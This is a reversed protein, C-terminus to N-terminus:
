SNSLDNENLKLIPVTDLNKDKMYTTISEYNRLKIHDGNKEAISKDRHCFVCLIQCKAMEESIRRMHKEKTKETVARKFNHMLNTIEDSKKSKNIHDFDYQHHPINMHKYKCDVNQCGTEIKHQQIKKIFEHKSAEEYNKKEYESQTRVIEMFDNEPLFRHNNYSRGIFHLKKINNNKDTFELVQGKKFKQTINKSEIATWDLERSIRKNRAM